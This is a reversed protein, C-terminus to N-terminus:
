CDKHDENYKAVAYYGIESEDDKFVGSSNQINLHKILENISLKQLALKDVHLNEYLLEKCTECIYITKGRLVLPFLGKNTEKCGICKISKRYVKKANRLKEKIIEITIEKKNM